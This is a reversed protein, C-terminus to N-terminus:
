NVKHCIISYIYIILFIRLMLFLMGEVVHDKAAISKSQLSSKIKAETTVGGTFEMNLIIGEFEASINM